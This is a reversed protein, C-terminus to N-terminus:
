TAKVIPFAWFIKTKDVIVALWGSRPPKIRRPTLEGIASKNRGTSEELRLLQGDYTVMYDGVEADFNRPNYGYVNGKKRKYPRILGGHKPWDSM